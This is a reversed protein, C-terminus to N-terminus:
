VNYQQAEIRWLHNSVHDWELGVAMIRQMLIRGRLTFPALFQLLDFVRTICKRLTFGAGALAEMTQKRVKKAEAVTKVFPHLLMGSHCGYFSM